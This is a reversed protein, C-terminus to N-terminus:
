GVGGGGGESKVNIPAYLTKGLLVVCPDWGPSSGLNRTGFDLASVLHAVAGGVGSIM